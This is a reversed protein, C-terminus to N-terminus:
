LIVLSYGPGRYTRAAFNVHPFNWGPHLYTPEVTMYQVNIATSGVILHFICTDNDM